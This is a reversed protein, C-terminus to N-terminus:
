AKKYKEICADISPYLEYNNYKVRKMVDEIRAKDDSSHYSIHWKPM